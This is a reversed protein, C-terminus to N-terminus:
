SKKEKFFIHLREKLDVEYVLDKAAEAVLRFREESYRLAREANKRGTIDRIFIAMQGGQKSQFTFHPLISTMLQVMRVVISHRLVTM